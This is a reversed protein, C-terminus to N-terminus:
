KGSNFWTIFAALGLSAFFGGFLGAAVILWRSPYITTQAESRYSLVEIKSNPAEEAAVAAAAAALKESLAKIVAAANEPDRDVYSLKFSSVQNGTATIDSIELREGIRDSLKDLDAGKEADKKFLNNDKILLRLSAASLVDGMKEYLSLVLQRNGYGGGAVASQGVGIPKINLVVASKYIPSLTWAQFCAFATTLFTLFIIGRKHKSM